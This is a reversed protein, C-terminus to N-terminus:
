ALSTCAVNRLVSSVSSFPILRAPTSNWSTCPRKMNRLYMRLNQPRLHLMAIPPIKYHFSISFNFRDLSKQTVLHRRLQATHTPITSCSRRSRNSPPISKSSLHLSLHFSTILQSHLATQSPHKTLLKMHSSEGPTLLSPEFRIALMISYIEMKYSVFMADVQVEARLNPLMRLTNVDEGSLMDSPMAQLLREMDVYVIYHVSRYWFEKAGLFRRDEKPMGPGPVDSNKWDVVFSAEVLECARQLQELSYTVVRAGCLDTLETCSDLYNKGKRGIKEAFAEVSKPRSSIISQPVFEFGSILGSLKPLIARSM